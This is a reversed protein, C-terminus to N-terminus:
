LLKKDFILYNHTPYVLARHILGLVGEWPTEPPGSISANWIFINNDEVPSASIGQGCLFM